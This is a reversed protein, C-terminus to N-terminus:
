LFHYRHKSIRPGRARDTIVPQPAPRPRLHKTAALIDDMQAHLADLRDQTTRVQEIREPIADEGPRLWGRRHRLGIITSKTVGVQKAIKNLSLNTSTILQEAKAVQAPTM